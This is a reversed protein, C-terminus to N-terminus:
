WSRSSSWSVWRGRAYDSRPASWSSSCPASFPVARQKGHVRARHSIQRRPNTSPHRKAQHHERGEDRLTRFRVRLAATRERGIRRATQAAAKVEADGDAHRCSRIAAVAVAAVVAEQECRHENALEAVLGIRCKATLNRASSPSAPTNLEPPPKRMSSAVGVRTNESATALGGSTRADFGYGAEFGVTAHEHHADQGVGVREADAHACVEHEANQDASRARASLM